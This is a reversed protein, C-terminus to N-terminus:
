PIFYCSPPSYYRCVLSFHDDAQCSYIVKRLSFYFWSMHILKKLKTLLKLIFGIFHGVNGKLKNKKINFFMLWQVPDQWKAALWECKNEETKDVVCEGTRIIFMM